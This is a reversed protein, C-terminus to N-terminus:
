LNGREGRLEGESEGRSEQGKEYAAVVKVFAVYALKRILGEEIIASCVGSASRFGQLYASYHVTDFSTGKVEFPSEVPSEGSAKSLLIIVFFLPFAHHGCLFQFFLFYLWLSPQQGWASLKLHFHCKCLHILYCM